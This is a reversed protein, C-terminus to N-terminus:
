SKKQFSNPLMPFQRITDLMPRRTVTPPSHTRSVVTSPKTDEVGSKQRLGSIAAKILASPIDSSDPKSRRDARKRQEQPFDAGHSSVITKFDGPVTSECDPKSKARGRGRGRGIGVRNSVTTLAEPNSESRSVNEAHHLLETKQFTPFSLGSSVLPPLNTSHGNSNWSSVNAMQNINKNTLRACFGTARPLRLPEFKSKKVHLPANKSGQFRFCEPTNKPKTEMEPLEGTTFERLHSNQGNKSQFLSSSTSNVTLPEVTGFGTPMNTESAMFQKTNEQRTLVSKDRHIERGENVFSTATARVEQTPHSTGNVWNEEETQLPIKKLVSALEQESLIRTNGFGPPEMEKCITSSPFQPPEMQKGMTSSPFQPYLKSEEARSGGSLKLKELLLQLESESLIKLSNGENSPVAEQLKPTEPYKFASPGLNVQQLLSSLQGDSASHVNKVGHPAIKYNSSLNGIPQLTTSSLFNEGLSRINASNNIGKECTVMNSSCNFRRRAQLSDTAVVEAKLPVTNGNFYIGRAPAATYSDCITSAAGTGQSTVRSRVGDSSVKAGGHTLKSTSISARVDVSVETKEGELFKHGVNRIDVSVAEDALDEYGPPPLAFERRCVEKRTNEAKRRTNKSGNVDWISTCFDNSDKTDINANQMSCTKNRRNMSVENGASKSRSSACKGVEGNEKRTSQARQVQGTTDSIVHVPTSGRQQKGQLPTSSSIDEAMFSGSPEKVDESDTWRDEWHDPVVDKELSTDCDSTSSQASKLVRSKKGNDAYKPLSKMRGSPTSTDLLKSHEVQQSSLSPRMLNVNRKRLKDRGVSINGSSTESCPRSKETDKTGQHNSQGNQQNEKGEKDRVNDTFSQGFVFVDQSSSQENAMYPGDSRFVDCQNKRSMCQGRGSSHTSSRSRTQQHSAPLFDMVPSAPPPRVFVPYGSPPRVPLSLLPKPAPLPVGTTASVGGLSARSHCGRKSSRQSKDDNMMVDQSEALTNTRKAIGDARCKKSLEQARRFMFDEEEKSGPVLNTRDPTLFSDGKTRWANQSPAPVLPHRSRKGTRAEPKDMSGIADQSQKHRTDSKRSKADSKQLAEEEELNRQREKERLRRLVSQKGEPGPLEQEAAGDLRFKKLDEKQQQMAEEHARKREEQVQQLTHRQPQEKLLNWFMEFHKDTYSKEPKKARSCSNTAQSKNGSPSSATILNQRSESLPQGHNPSSKNQNEFSSNSTSTTVDDCSHEMSTSKFCSCISIEQSRNDSSSSATSLNQQPESLSQGCSSSENQNDFSSNSTSITVDGDTHEMSASAKGKKALRKMKKAHEKDARALDRMRKEWSLKRREKELRQREIENKSSSCISDRSLVIASEKKEVVSEDLKCKKMLVHRIGVIEQKKSEVQVTDMVSADTVEKDSAHREVADASELSSSTLLGSSNESSTTTDQQGSTDRSDEETSDKVRSCRQQEKIEANVSKRRQEMPNPISDYFDFLEKEEDTLPKQLNQRKKKKSMFRHQRVLQNLLDFFWIESKIVEDKFYKDCYQLNSLFVDLANCTKCFDRECSTGKTEMCFTDFLIACFTTLEQFKETAEPSENKKPHYKFATLLYRNRADVYSVDETSFGLERLCRLKSDKPLEDTAMEEHPFVEHLCCTVTLPGNHDM